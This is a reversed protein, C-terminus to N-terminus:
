IAPHSPSRSVVANLCLLGVDKNGTRLPVFVLNGPGPGCALKRLSEDLDDLAQPDFFLVEQARLTEELSPSMPVQIEHALEESIGVTAVVRLEGTAGDLLGLIARSVGIQRAVVELLRRSLERVDGATM